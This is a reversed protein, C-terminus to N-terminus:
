THNYILSTLFVRPRNEFVRPRNEPVLPRNEQPVLPRNEQGVELGLNDDSSSLWPPVQALVEQCARARDYRRRDTALAM